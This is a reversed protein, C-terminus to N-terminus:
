VEQDFLSQDTIKHHSETDPVGTHATMHGPNIGAKEFQQKLYDLHQSIKTVVDQTDSWFRTNITKDFCSIKCHITALDPPTVTINVSWNEQKEDNSGQKEQDIEIRVSDASEKNIFPIDIIWVQKPGEDKPLSTLQNLIIKALSTETKQQMEKILNLDSAQLKQQKKVNLAQKLAYKLKLLQAKFDTQIMLNSKEVSAALKTELFLGSNRITKKLQKPDNVDKVQPINELIERALRKLADPVNENNKILPLTKIIQDVLESVPQQIPLVQKITELIKQESIVQGSGPKDNLIKFEPQIGTKVVELKIVQNPKLQQITLASAKMNETAPYTLQNKNLSIIPSQNETKNNSYLASAPLQLQVKNDHISIVKASIIQGTNLKPQGPEIIKFEPHIGTNKVELVFSQGPKLNQINAVSSASNKDLPYGLQRATVTIHQVQSSIPGTKAQSLKDATEAINTQNKFLALQITENSINIVKANVLQGQVLNIKASNILKFEPNAGVKSLELQIKQGPKLNLLEAVPLEKAVSSTLQQKSLTVVPNHQQLINQKLNKTYAASELTPTIYLKLQIVDNKISIIKATIVTTATVGSTLKSTSLKNLIGANPIIQKLTQNKTTVQKNANPLLQSDTKNLEADSKIIKFELAPTLKTVVLQLSQGPKTEIPQNSQVQIEKKSQLTQLLLSQNSNESSIVKVALQQNLKLSLSDIKVTAASPPPEQSKPLKIDM